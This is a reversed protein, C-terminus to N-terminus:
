RDGDVPVFASPPVFGHPLMLSAVPLPVVERLAVILEGPATGPAVLPSRRARVMSVEASTLLNPPPMATLLERSVTFAGDDRVRCRVERAMGRASWAVTLLAADSPEGSEVWKLELDGGRRYAPVDLGPFARPAQAQATFPGIEEGGEGVVEYLSGPSLALPLADEAGYVVGAVYPTLEPYHRAVLHTSDIPGRAALRGADLLKIDIPARAATLARDLELASDILRCSDIPIANNDPIGLLAPVRDAEAASYRAFHGQGEFRIGEGAGIRTFTLTVRATSRLPEGVDRVESRSCSSAAPLFGALALWLLQHAHSRMTPLPATRM